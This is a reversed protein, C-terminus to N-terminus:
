RRWAGWEPYGGWQSWFQLEVYAVLFATAYVAQSPGGSRLNIAHAVQSKAALFNISRVRKPDFDKREQVHARQIM